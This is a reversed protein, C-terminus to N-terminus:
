GRAEVASMLTSCIEDRDGELIQTPLKKTLAQRLRILLLQTNNPDREIREIQEIPVRLIFPSIYVLFGERVYLGIARGLSLQWLIMCAFSILVFCAIYGAFVFPASDPFHHWYTWPLGGFILFAAIVSVPMVIYITAWFLAGKTKLKIPM